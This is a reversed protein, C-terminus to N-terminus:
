RQGRLLSIVQSSLDNPYGELTGNLPSAFIMQPDLKGPYIPRM